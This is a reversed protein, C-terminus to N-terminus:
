HFSSPNHFSPTSVLSDFGKFKLPSTPGEPSDYGGSAKLAWKTGGKHMPKWYLHSSWHHGTTMFVPTLANGCPEHLASFRLNAGILFMSVIKCYSDVTDVARRIRRRRIRGETAPSCVTRSPTARTEGTSIFDSIISHYNPAYPDIAHQRNATIANLPPRYNLTEPILSPEPCWGKGPSSVIIM